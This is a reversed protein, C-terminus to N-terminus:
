QLAALFSAEIDPSVEAFDLKTLFASPAIDRAVRFLGAVKAAIRGEADRITASAHIGGRGEDGLRGEVRYPAGCNVPRLFETDMKRTYCIKHTHTFITWWMVEDLIGAVIGCHAVNDYWQFKRDLLFESFVSSDKVMVKM